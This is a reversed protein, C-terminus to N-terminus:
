SISRLGDFAAACAVFISFSPCLWCGRLSALGVGMEFSGGREADLM